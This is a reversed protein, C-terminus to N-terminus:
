AQYAFGGLAQGQLLAPAFLGQATKLVPQNAQAQYYKWTTGFLCPFHTVTM